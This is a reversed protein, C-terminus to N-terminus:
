EAIKFITKGYKDEGCTEVINNEILFTITKYHIGGFPFNTGDERNKYAVAKDENLRIKIVDATKFLEIAKMQTKNLKKM